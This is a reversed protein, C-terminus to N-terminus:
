IQMHALLEEFNWTPQHAVGIRESMRRAIMVNM